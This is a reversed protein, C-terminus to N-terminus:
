RRARELDSPDVPVRVRVTTGIGAGSAVELQGGISEARERMSILGLSQASQRKAEPFGVGDDKIQVDLETSTVRGRVVVRRAQSHRAVNTLAEQVIRFVATDRNRHVHLRSLELDLDCV